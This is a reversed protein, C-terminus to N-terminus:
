GSRSVWERQKKKGEERTKDCRRERMQGSKDREKDDRMIESDKNVESITIQNQKNTTDTM